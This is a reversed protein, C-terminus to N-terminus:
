SYWPQNEVTEGHMSALLRDPRLCDQKISNLPPSLSPPCVSYLLTQQSEVSTEIYPWLAETHPTLHLVILSTTVGVVYDPCLLAESQNSTLETCFLWMILFDYSHQQEQTRPWAPKGPLM